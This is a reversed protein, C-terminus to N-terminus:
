WKITKKEANRNYPLLCNADGPDMPISVPKYETMKFRDLVKQLYTSQCLAITEGVVHDFQMGQYNFINGLDTM